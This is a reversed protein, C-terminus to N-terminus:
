LRPCIPCLIDSPLSSVGHGKRKKAVSGAQSKSSADKASSVAAAATAAGGLVVDPGALPDFKRSVVNSGYAREVAQKRQEWIEALVNGSIAMSETGESEWLCEEDVVTQTCADTSPKKAGM